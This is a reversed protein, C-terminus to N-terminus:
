PVQKEETQQEDDDSEITDSSDKSATIEEIIDDDTLTETTPIANDVSTYDAFNLGALRALPINVYEEDSDENETEPTQHSFRAHRFCNTITTPTVSTWAQQLLRLADLVTIVFDKKKEAYTIQKLLVLKRYQVNLNQIIGQDCPQTKSTTNPPLFVLKINQLGRVKPHALCNDIIMAVRRHQNQFKRDLKTIWNTFIESTM